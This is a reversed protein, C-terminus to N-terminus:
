KEEKAPLTEGSFKYVEVEAHGWKKDDLRHVKFSNSQEDYERNVQEAQTLFSVAVEAPVLFYYSGVKILAKM